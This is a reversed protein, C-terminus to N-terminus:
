AKEDLDAQRGIAGATAMTVSTGALRGGFSGPQRGRSRELGAVGADHLALAAATVQELHCRLQPRLVFRTVAEDFARRTAGMGDVDERDEHESTM